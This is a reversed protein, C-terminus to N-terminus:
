QNRGSPGAQKRIRSLRREIAKSTMSPFLDAIEAHTRGNASEWLITKDEPTLNELYEKISMQEIVMEAPDAGMRAGWPSRFGLEEIEAIDNCELPLFRNVSRWRRDAEFVRVFEYLCTNIFYTRIKLGQCPDWGRGARMKQQFNLLAGVVTNNVIDQRRDWDLALLEQQDPEARLTIGKAALKAYIQRSLIWQDLVRSAYKSLETVVTQWVEGEVRHKILLEFLDREAGARDLGDRAPGSASCVACSSCPSPADAAPEAEADARKGGSRTPLPDSACSRLGDSLNGPDSPDRDPPVADLDSTGLTFGRWACATGQVPEV